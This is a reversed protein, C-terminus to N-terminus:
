ALAAAWTKRAQATIALMDPWVPPFGTVNYGAWTLQEPMICLENGPRPGALWCRLLADVFDLYDRGEPTLKGKADLVPIQCHHGNFARLHFQGSNQILEPRDLLRQAYPASIHKVLAFHSFDFNFRIMRGTAAHYREAIEWTKEPTETCTDRHVELDVTVGLQQAFRELKLWGEVAVKPPTDHDLFQVNIRKSDTSRASILHSAFDHAGCSIGSMRELGLEYTERIMEGDASVMVGEFGAKKALRMTDIRSM